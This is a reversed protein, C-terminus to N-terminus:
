TGKEGDADDKREPAKQDGKPEEKPAPASEDGEPQTEPEPPALEELKEELVEEPRAAKVVRGDPDLLVHTPFGRIGYAKVTKGTADLLIPFPLTKGEWRKESLV